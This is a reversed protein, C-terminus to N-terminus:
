IAEAVIFTSGGVYIFDSSKATAKAASLAKKVSSYSKGCLGFERAEARLVREDLARPISAKTFYYTANKPLLNYIKDRTKDSVMGFVIHLQQYNEQKLQETIFKIGAENHGTDCVITPNEGIKQWRGMLGTLDIVKAFGEEINQASIKIGQQQLLETAQLVTRSNNTQYLGKLQCTPLQKSAMTSDAFYIPSNEEDAKQRFVKEVEKQTEGIVVPTNPKIIGAKEIAIKELTDGLLDTHDLSINTIISLLPSIINTCDLRGGLGVEIVAIDVGEEAFYNFALM